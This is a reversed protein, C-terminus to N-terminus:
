ERSVGASLGAEYGPRTRVTLRQGDLPRVAVRVHRYGRAEPRPAAYGVTYSHRLEHAIARLAETVDNMNRPTYAEGGSAEALDHMIKPNGRPGFPDQLAVSFIVANSARTKAMAQDFTTRSANDGGDSIIILMRREYRGRVVYDLGVSVADFLATRGRAAIAGVLADRLIGANTTFPTEAPLAPRVVENFALAFMDDQPHSAEAFATAAAIVQERIPMMSVSSDILLGVTVPVDDNTFVSIPQPAGDEFVSFASQPLGDVDRGRRDRVSVHLVVLDAAGRFRVTEPPAPAPEPVQVGQPEAPPEEGAEQTRVLATIGLVVAAVALPFPRLM